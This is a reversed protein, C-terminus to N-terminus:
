DFHWAIVRVEFGILVVGDCALRKRVVVESVM